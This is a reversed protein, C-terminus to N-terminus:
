ELEAAHERLVRAVELLGGKVPHGRLMAPAGDRRYLFVYPSAERRRENFTVVPFRPWYPPLKALVKKEFAAEAAEDAFPYWVENNKAPNRRFADSVAKEIMEEAIGRATRAAPASLVAHRRPLTDATLEVKLGDVRSLLWLVPVEDLKAQALHAGTWPVYTGDFYEHVALLVWRDRVFADAPLPETGKRDEAARVFDKRVRQLFPTDPLPQRAVLEDHLGTLFVRDEESLRDFTLKFRVGDDRRMLEVTNATVDVIRADVSRGDSAVLVREVPPNVPLAVLFPSCVPLLSLCVSVKTLFRM